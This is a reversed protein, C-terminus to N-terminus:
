KKYKALANKTFDSLVLEGSIAAREALLEDW